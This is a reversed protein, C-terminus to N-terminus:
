QFSRVFSQLEDGKGRCVSISVSCNKESLITLIDNCMKYNKSKPSNFGLSTATLIIVDTPLKIESAAAIIGYLICQNASSTSINAKSIIKSRGKYILAATYSGSHSFSNCSGVSLIFCQNSHERIFERISLYDPFDFNHFKENVSLKSISSYRSDLIDNLHQFIYSQAGETYYNVYYEDWEGTRDPKVIKTTIGLLDGKETPIRSGNASKCLYGNAELWDNIWSAQLKRTGNEATVRNIEDAIESVKSNENTQLQSRQEDTIYFIKSEHKMKKIDRELIEAVFRFCDKIQENYLTEEDIDMCDTPDIGNALYDMYMKAQRLRETENLM